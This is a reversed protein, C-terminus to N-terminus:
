NDMIPTRLLKLKQSLETVMRLDRCCLKYDESCAIKNDNTLKQLTKKVTDIDQGTKESITEPTVYGKELIELNAIRRVTNDETFELPVFQQAVVPM